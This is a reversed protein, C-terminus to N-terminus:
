AKSFLNEIAKMDFPPTQPPVEYKSSQNQMRNKILLAQLIKLSSNDDVHFAAHQEFVKKMSRKKEETPLSSNQGFSACGKLFILFLPTRPTSPGL